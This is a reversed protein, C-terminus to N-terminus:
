HPHAFVWAGVVIAVIVAAVVGITLLLLHVYGLVLGALALGGGSEGTRRIQSRALHGMVIAAIAGVLPLAFYSIIGFVLSLIALTNTAAPAAYTPPPPYGPPRQVTCDYPPAVM